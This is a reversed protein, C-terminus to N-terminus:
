FQREVEWSQEVFVKKWFSEFDLTAIAVVWTLSLASKLLFFFFSLLLQSKGEEEEDEEKFNNKERRNLWHKFHHHHRHRHRYHFLKKTQYFEGSKLASVTHIRNLHQVIGVVVVAVVYSSRKRLHASLHVATSLWQLTCMLVNSIVNPFFIGNRATGVPQISFKPHDSFSFFIKFIQKM